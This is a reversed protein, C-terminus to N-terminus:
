RLHFSSPKLCAECIMDIQKAVGYICSWYEWYITDYQRKTATRNVSYVNSSMFVSM